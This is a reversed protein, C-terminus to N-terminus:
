VGGLYAPLLRIMRYLVLNKASNYQVAKKYLFMASLVFFLPVSYTLWGFDFYKFKTTGGFFETYACAYHYIIICLAAIGRFAKINKSIETNM